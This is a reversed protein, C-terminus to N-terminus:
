YANYVRMIDEPKLWREGADYSMISHASNAQHGLGFIHGMEHVPTDPRQSAGYYMMRGGRDAAGVADICGRCNTLPTLHIDDGRQLNRSPGTVNVNVKMRYNQGGYNLAVTWGSSIKDAYAQVTVSEISPDYSMQLNFVKTGDSTTEVKSAIGQNKVVRDDTGAPYGGDNMTSAESM